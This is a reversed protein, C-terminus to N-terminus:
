SEFGALGHTSHVPQPAPMYTLVLPEGILLRMHLSHLAPLKLAVGFAPVQVGHDVQAAPV